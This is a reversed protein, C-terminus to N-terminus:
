YRPVTPDIAISWQDIGGDLNKVDEYGQTKLFAVARKSRGGHHCHVVVLKDKPVESLRGALEQIPVLTAGEIHCVAYEDPTRVDLIMLDKKDKKLQSLKEVSIDDTM